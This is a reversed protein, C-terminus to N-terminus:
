IVVQSVYPHFTKSNIITFIIYVWGYRNAEILHVVRLIEKGAETDHVLTVPVM